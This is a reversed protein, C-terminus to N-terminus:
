VERYKHQKVSSIGKKACHETYLDYMLSLNLKNELYKKQTTSRCYHSEIRPFLNIHTYVEDSLKQPLKYKMHKGKKRKVPVGTNLNILNNHFYHVRAQSISLIGIFFKKCVRHIISDNELFYHYSYKRRDNDSVTRVRIKENRKMFKAYFPNKNNDDLSWFHKFMFKRNEPTIKSECSFICNSCNIEPSKREEVQLGRSNIYSQGSERKKKINPIRKWMNPNRTHKQTRKAKGDSSFYYM